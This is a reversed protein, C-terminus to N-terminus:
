FCCFLPPPLSNSAEETHTNIFEVDRASWMGLSASSLCRGVLFFLLLFFISKNENTKETYTILYQTPNTPDRGRTALSSSSTTAYEISVPGIRREPRRGGGNWAWACSTAREVARGASCRSELRSKRWSTWHQQWGRCLIPYFNNM